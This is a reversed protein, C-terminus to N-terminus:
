HALGYSETLTLHLFQVHITEGSPPERWKPDVPYVHVDSHSRCCSHQEGWGAAWCCDSNHVTTVAPTSKMPRDMPIQPQSTRSSSPLNPQPPTAAEDSCCTHTVTLRRSMQTPCKVIWSLGVYAASGRAAVASLSCWPKCTM